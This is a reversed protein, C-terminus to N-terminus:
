GEGVMEKVLNDITTMVDEKEFGTDTIGEMDNGEVVTKCYSILEEKLREAFEKVAEDRATEISKKLMIHKTLLSFNAKKRTDSLKVLDDTLRNLREIEADKEAIYKQLTEQGAILSEIQEEKHNMLNNFDRNRRIYCKEEHEKKPDYYPCWECDPTCACGKMVKIIEDDTMKESRQEGEPESECHKCYPLEEGHKVSIESNCVSCRYVVSNGQEEVFLWRMTQKM